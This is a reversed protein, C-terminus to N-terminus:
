LIPAARSAGLVRFTESPTTAMLVAEVGSLREADGAAMRADVEDFRRMHRALLQVALALALPDEGRAPGLPGPLHLNCQGSPAPPEGQRKSKRTKSAM